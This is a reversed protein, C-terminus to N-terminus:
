SGGADVIAKRVGEVTKRKQIYNKVELDESSLCLFV